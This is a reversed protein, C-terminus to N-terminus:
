RTSIYDLLLLVEDKTLTNILGQPMPSLPSPRSDEIDDRPIRTIKTPQTPDTILSVAVDDVAVEQGTYTVGSSTAISKQKYKDDIVRSPELISLLLDQRSFRKGM